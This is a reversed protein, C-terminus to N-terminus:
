MYTAKRKHLSRALTPSSPCLPPPPSSLVYLFPPAPLRVAALARWNFGHWYWYIGGADGRYLHEVKLKRKCVVLYHVTMMGMMPGLFVGYGSVLLFTPATSLLQWPNVAPSVLATLYAGRRIDVYRPFVAALDIGGAMANGPVTSGLQSACLAAGAFFVAARTGPARGHGAAARAPGDSEVRGPRRLAAADGGGGPHGAGVRLGLVPPLALAQGWLVDRPRRALRSFDSMNLIGAAISGVTATAGSVVAWARGAPAATAPASSLTDGFGGHGMTALAWVLLALFFVSTVASSVHFTQLRHPRIWLFPLCM